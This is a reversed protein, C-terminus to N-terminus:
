CPCAECNLFTVDAAPFFCLRFTGDDCRTGGLIWQCHQTGSGWPWRGTVHVGQRRDVTVTVAVAGGMQSHGRTRATFAEEGAAALTSGAHSGAM